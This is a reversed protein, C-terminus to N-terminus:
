DVHRRVGLLVAAAMAWPALDLVLGRYYDPALFVRGDSSWSGLLTFRTASVAWTAAIWLVPVAVVAVAVRRWAEGIPVQEVVAEGNDWAVAAPALLWLLTAFVVWRGREILNATIWWPAGGYASVRVADMALQLIADLVLAAITAALFATTYTRV